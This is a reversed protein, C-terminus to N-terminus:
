EWLEPIFRYGNGNNWRIKTDTSTTGVYVRGDPTKLSYVTYM